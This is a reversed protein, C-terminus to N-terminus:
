FKKAFAPPAPKQVMVDIPKSEPKKQPENFKKIEEYLKTIMITQSSIAQTIQNLAAVIDKNSEQPKTEPASVPASEKLLFKNEDVKLIMCMLKYSTIPIGSFKESIFGSMYSQDYGMEKSLSSATKGIKKLYAKLAVRDVNTILEAGFRTRSVGKKRAM